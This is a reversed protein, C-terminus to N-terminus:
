ASHKGKQASRQRALAATQAEWATPRPDDEALRRELACAQCHCEAWWSRNSPLPDARDRRWLSERAAQRAGPTIQHEYAFLSAIARSVARSEDPRTYGQQYLTMSRDYLAIWRWVAGQGNHPTDPM